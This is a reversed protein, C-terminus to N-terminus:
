EPLEIEYRYSNCDYGRSFPPNDMKMFLVPNKTARDELRLWNSYAVDRHHEDLLEEIVTVTDRRISVTEPDIEALHLVARPMCGETPGNLINLLVYVRGNKTSRFTDPVSTPSYVITGDDFTLPRPATWTRGEDASTAILKVSPYGHSHQTALVPCQRMIAFLRGDPFQSVHPEDLGQVSLDHGVKLEGAQRWDLGSRDARWQGLWTKVVFFFPDPKLGHLASLEPRNGTTVWFVKGSALRLMSYCLPNKGLNLTQVPSWTKGADASVQQRIAYQSLGWGWDRKAGASDGMEQPNEADSALRKKEEVTWEEQYHRLLMGNGEDLFYSAPKTLPGSEIKAWTRGADRSIMAHAPTEFPRTPRTCDAMTCLIAPDNVSIYEPRSRVVRNESLRNVAHFTKRVTVRTVPNRRVMLPRSLSYGDPEAAHEALIGAHQMSLGWWPLPFSARFCRQRVTLEVLQGHPAEGDFFHCVIRRGDAAVLFSGPTRRVADLSELQALPRGDVYIQGLTLPLTARDDAREAPRVKAPPDFARADLPNYGGRDFEYNLPCSRPACALEYPNYAGSAFLRDPLEAAFVGDGLPQWTPNFVDSGKLWVRTGPLAEFVIMSRPCYHHGHRHLVVEERYVGEDIVIRDYADAVAAAKSITKYPREPTGPNDDSAEPHRQAVHHTKGLTLWANPLFDAHESM